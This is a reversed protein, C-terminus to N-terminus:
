VLMIDTTRNKLVSLGALNDVFCQRCGPFHIAAAKRSVCGVSVRFRVVIFNLTAAKRRRVQM